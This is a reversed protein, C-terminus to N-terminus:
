PVYLIDEIFRSFTSGETGVVKIAKSVVLADVFPKLFSGLNVDDIPSSLQNLPEIEKQFDELFLICPFTRRFISLQPHTRPSEIDTSVYLPTNLMQYRRRRHRPSPCTILSPTASINIDIKPPSSCGSGCERTRWKLSITDLECFKSPTENVLKEIECVMTIPLGLIQHLLNWWISRVTDEYTCVSTTAM